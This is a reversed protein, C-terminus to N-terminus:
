EAGAVAPACDPLLAIRPERRRVVGTVRTPSFGVEDKRVIARDGM